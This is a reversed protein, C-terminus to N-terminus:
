FTELFAKAKLMVENWEREVESDWVIGGGAYYFLEGSKLNGVATRIAVNCTFDGEPNIYGVTGCYIERTHPELEDIIEVAKRKPAGTVSAPPFTAEIIEKFGKETECEVTSVLQHLTKYSEVGFLKPVKVSSIKAVRGLDNRVMDTIMLNEALEKEMEFFSEPNETVPLTGKIPKSILKNREKKLFLEMSGSVVFLNGVKIFAGYPVPQKEIFKRYLSYPSGKFEFNFRVTFNIQYIDGKEIHEKIKKFHKLYDQKSISLGKQTIEFNGSEAMPEIPKLVAVLFKPFTNVKNTELNLLPYGSEFSIYFLLKEGKYNEVIEFFEKWSKPFFYEEIIWFTRKETFGGELVAFNM